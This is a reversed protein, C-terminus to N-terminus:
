MGTTHNWEEGRIACNPSSPKTPITAQGIKCYIMIVLTTQDEMYKSLHAAQQRFTKGSHIKKQTHYFVATALSIGLSPEFRRAALKPFIFLHWVAMMDTM